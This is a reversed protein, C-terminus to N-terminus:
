KGLVGISINAGHQDFSAKSNILNSNYQVNKIFNVRGTAVSGFNPYVGDIGGYASNLNVMSGNPFNLNSLNITMAEMTIQRVQDSFRLNDITLDAAAIMHIEDAGTGRTAFESNEIVISDLSRVGISDEAHLDVNIIELSDFSGFGLSDGSFDIITGQTFNISAGSIFLLEEINSTASSFSIDGSLSIDESSAVILSDYSIKSLDYNGEGFTINVGGLVGSKYDESSSDPSEGEYSDDDHDLESLADYTDLTEQFLQSALVQSESLVLNLPIEGNFSHSELLSVASFENELNEDDPPSNTPGDSLPGEILDGLVKVLETRTLDLVELEYALTSPVRSIDETLDYLQVFLKPHELAFTYYMPDAEFANISSFLADQGGPVKLENIHESISYINQIRESNKSVAGFLNQIKVTNNKTRFVLTQLNDFQNLNSLVSEAHNEGLMDILASIEAARDPNSNIQDSYKPYASLLNALEENSLTDALNTDGFLESILRDADPNPNGNDDFKYGEIKALISPAIDINAFVYDLRDPYLGLEDVLMSLSDVIDLNEFVKDLRSRNLSNLSNLRKIEGPTANDASPIDQTRFKNTLNMVSDLSELNSIVQIKQDDNAFRLVSLIDQARDEYLSLATLLDEDGSFLNQLEKYASNKVSQTFDDASKSNKIDDFFATNIAGGESEENFLLAELQVANDVSVAILTELDINEDGAAQSDLGSVVKNITKLESIDKKFFNVLDSGSKNARQANKRAENMTSAEAANGFINKAADADIGATSVVEFVEALDDAKDANQLTNSLLDLASSDLTKNEGDGTGLTDRAVKMVKNLSDAKDANKFVNTLNTADQAGLDAAVEMVEALDNAKDANQLTSSLIDLSSSDLKKSGAEGSGLAEKAVKM